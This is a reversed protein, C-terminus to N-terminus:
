LFLSMSSYCSSLLHHYLVKHFVVTAQKPSSCHGDVISSISSGSVFSSIFPASLPISVSLYWNLFYLSISPEISLMSIDSFTEGFRSLSSSWFDTLLTLLDGTSIGKRFGYQRDSLLDSTSLRKQIKRNLISEFAKSLCSLLAVSRYNSPKSLDAKKSVPHIYAYKWCSPFTSTSLYIRFLIVLCSTVVYACNKLVIPPVGDPGYAM